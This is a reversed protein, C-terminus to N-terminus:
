PALRECHSVILDLSEPRRAALDAAVRRAAETMFFSDSARLALEQAEALEFQSRLRTSVGLKALAGANATQELHRPSLLQPRGLALCTEITGIGGHHVVLSAERLVEPLLPPRDHVTAGASRLADRLSPSVDRVFVALPLKTNILAQLLKPTGGHDAALYAFIAPRPPPSLPSPASELPGTAPELRLDRFVDTEPYTCVVHAEGGVMGPITGPSPLGRRGQVTAAAALMTAEGAMDSGDERLRPMEPLHPPPLVFGDGISVVPVRGFAALALMPSYDAVIVDPQVVDIMGDWGLVTPWLIEARAFGCGAIIDAYGRAVFDRPAQSLHHPAQLIPIGLARFEDPIAWLERGAVTCSFGREFLARAITVLRRAHGLGAGLEWALLARRERLAM